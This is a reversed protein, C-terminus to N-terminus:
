NSLKNPVNGGKGIELTPLSEAMVHRVKEEQLKSTHRKPASNRSAESLKKKELPREM